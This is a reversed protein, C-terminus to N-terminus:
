KGYQSKVESAVMKKLNPYGFAELPKGNVFFSPTRRVSLVKLDEMDQKLRAVIEPSKADEKAKNIDIGISKLIEWAKEPIVQHHVTWYPQYRYFTELAEWYKGQLRAAELMHVVKDAGRHFPAYRLVLQVENPYTALIEKVPWYFDRCTECAPDFFEILYVKADKNGYTPSYDRVFTSFDEKVLFDIQSKQQQKYFYSGGVFLFALVLITVLIIPIKKM